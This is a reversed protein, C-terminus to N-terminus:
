RYIATLQNPLITLTVESLLGDKCNVFGVQFPWSITLIAMFRAMSNRPSISPAWNPVIITLYCEVWGGCGCIWM